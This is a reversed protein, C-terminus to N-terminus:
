INSKIRNCSKCLLQLNDETTKGGKSWPIIHDAEMDDISNFKNKCKACIGGCLSFAREKQSRPFIRLHLSSEKGTFIYEIIGKNKEVEEDEILDKIKNQLIVSDYKKTHYKNYLFGWEQNEIVQSYNKAFKEDFLSKVWKIVNQFYDWLDKADSKHQNKSMYDEIKDESIWKIVTELLEQRIASKSIYFKSLNQGPCDTKSFYKKAETLWSGSYIANRIEQKTLKVGAINIIEFWDLKEKDNGECIYVMLKYELIQRKESDSLNHYYMHNVSYDGNIYSCISITRQQGDLLEYTGDTNDAWYMVNLPFGNMITNIVQNRQPENYIFERQYKPRINLNGNYGIVGEEENDVFGKYLEKIPIEKLKIKM